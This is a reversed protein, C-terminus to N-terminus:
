EVENERLFGKKYIYSVRGKIRLDFYEIKDLNDQSVKEEIIKQLIRKQQFPDRKTNLWIEFGEASNLRIEESVYSPTKSQLTIKLFDDGVFEERIAFCFNLFDEDLFNDGIKVKKNSQDIITFIELLDLKERDELFVDGFQDILFCEGQSCWRIFDGRKQVNIILGKPFKKLVKVERVQWNEDKIKQILEKKPMLLFNDRPFFYWKSELLFDTVQRKILNSENGDFVVDVEDIKMVSSFFLTWNLIGIFFLLNSWFFIKKFFFKIKHSKKQNRSSKKKNKFSNEKKIIM